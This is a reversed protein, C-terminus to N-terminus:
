LTDRYSSRARAARERELREIETRVAQAIGQGAAGTPTNITINYTIASGTAGTAAAVPQAMAPTAVLGATAAGVTMADTMRQALSSVRSLPGEENMALGQSLGAMTQGGLEAFVRSPSHIGLAEKFWDRVSNAAGLLTEKLATLKGLVGDILGQILNAGFERFTTWLTSLTALAGTFSATVQSWLNSFYATIGDWNTYLLYVIAALAAIAAMVALVIGILPLLGIGFAGAIFALAALPALLVAIVNALGGFVIMAGALIGAVLLIGKTLRPNEAAWKRMWNIVEIAKHALYEVTPLLQAGLETRLAAFAGGAQAVAGNSSNLYDQYEKSTSTSYANAEAVLRLNKELQDLDSLLPTMAKASDSGFLKNLTAAQKDPALNSVRKMVDLLTSSADAEMGKSVATADLGLSRFGEKQAQTASGGRTFATMMNEITTAGTDADIGKDSLIQSLAAIQPATKGAMKDLGDIRGIMNTMAQANSGYTDTLANIQDGFRVAEERGLSFATRWHAMAAGASEAPIKLAISLKAADETLGLLEERGVGAQAAATAVRALADSAVPVRASLDLIDRSMAAFAEPNPFNVAQRLGGMASEFTMAESAVAILPAGIATGTQGAAAGVAALGSAGHRVKGFAARGAALRQSRKAAADARLSLQSFTENAQATQARLKAQGDVLRTTSIGAAALRNRVEQLRVAQAQHEAKLSAAARRADDFRAQLAQAPAGAAKMQHALSAVQDQAARMAQESQTMGLKLTRFEGIDAQTRNLARLQDQTERLAKSAKDSGGAIERLPTNTKDLAEFLVRIRLDRDM